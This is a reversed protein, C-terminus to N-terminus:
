GARCGPQQSNGDWLGFTHLDSVPDGKRSHGPWLSPKHMAQLLGKQRKALKIPDKADARPAPDQPLTPM